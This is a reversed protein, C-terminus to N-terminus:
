EVLMLLYQLNRLTRNQIVLVAVSGHFDGVGLTLFSLALHCDIDSDGIAGFRFDQFSEVLAVLDNELLCDRSIRTTPVPCKKEHRKNQNLKSKISNQCLLM